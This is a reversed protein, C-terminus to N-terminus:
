TFFSSKESIQQITVRDKDNEIKLRFTQLMFNILLTRNPKQM